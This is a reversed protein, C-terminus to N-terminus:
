KGNSFSDRELELLIEEVKGGRTEREFRKDIM